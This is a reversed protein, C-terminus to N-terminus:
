SRLLHQSAPLDLVHCEGLKASPNLGAVAHLNPGERGCLGASTPFRRSYLRLRLQGPPSSLHLWRRLEQAQALAERLPQRAELDPMTGLLRM